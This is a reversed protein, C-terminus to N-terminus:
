EASQELATFPKSVPKKLFEEKSSLAKNKCKELEDIKNKAQFANKNAIEKELLSLKERNFELKNKIESLSYEASILEKHGSQWKQKEERLTNLANETEYIKGGKENKTLFYKRAECLKKLVVSTDTSEDASYVINHIANELEGEDSFIIDNQGIFATKKYCIDSVGLFDEGACDHSIVNGTDNDIISSANRSATKRISTYSKGDSTFFDMEGSCEDKDWPMFRKKTNDCLSSSRGAFGFLMYRVFASITSKGAENKGKIVTIREDLSIDTNNLKGFSGIRLQKIKM